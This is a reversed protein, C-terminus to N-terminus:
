ADRGALRRYLTSRHVGLRAAARSVNGGCEVIMARMVTLTREDLREARDEASAIERTVDTSMRRPDPESRLDAPLADLTLTEGPEALIALTRLLTTLQRFNGPWDHARLRDVVEASLTVGDVRAAEAAWLRDIM